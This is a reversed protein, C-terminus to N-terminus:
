LGIAVRDVHSALNSETLKLGCQFARDALLSLLPMPQNIDWLSNVILPQGNPVTLLDFNPRASSVSPTLANSQQSYNSAM